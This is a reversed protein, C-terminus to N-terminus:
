LTLSRRLYATFEDYQAKDLIRLDKLLTLLAIIQDTILVKTIVARVDEDEIHLTANAVTTRHLLMHQVAEQFHGYVRDQVGQIAQLFSKDEM